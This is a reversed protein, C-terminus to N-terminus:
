ARAPVPEIFDYRARIEDLRRPAAGAARGQRYDREIDRVTKALPYDGFVDALWRSFDGRRLHGDLAASPSHEVIGVFERLTRARRGTPSGNRWFVFALPESVPVDFEAERDDSEGAKKQFSSRVFATFGLLDLFLVYKGGPAYYYPTHSM